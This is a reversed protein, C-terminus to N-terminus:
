DIIWTFTTHIIGGVGSTLADTQPSANLVMDSGSRYIVGALDAGNQRLWTISAWKTGPLYTSPIGKLSTVLGGTLTAILDPQTFSIIKGVKVIRCVARSKYTSGDFLSDYFTTDKHWGSNAVSDSVTATAANGTCSGSSGTVNGTINSTVGAFTPSSTTLVAQNMPYLENAGNGTNITAASLPGDIRAGGTASIGGAVSWLSDPTTTGIGGKGGFPNLLLSGVNAAYSISQNGVQIFARYDNLTGSSGLAVMINNEVLKATAVSNWATASGNIANVDNLSVTKGTRAYINGAATVSGSITAVTGNDSIISPGYKGSTAHLSKLITNVAISCRPAKKSLSDELGAKTLTGGLRSSGLSSDAIANLVGDIKVNGTVHVTDIIATDANIKQFTSDKVDDFRIFKKELTDVLKVSWDSGRLLNSNLNTHTLTDTQQYVKYLSYSPIANVGFSLLAVILLIKTKM